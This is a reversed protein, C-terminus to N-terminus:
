SRVVMSSNVGLSTSPGKEVVTESLGTTKAGRTKKLSVNGELYVQVNVEVDVRGRFETPEAKLWLVASDSSFQNAGISMSFGDRLVLIHSNVGLATSPGPRSQYLLLEGGALHLDQGVFARAKEGAVGGEVAM